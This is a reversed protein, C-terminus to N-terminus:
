KLAGNVAFEQVGVLGNADSNRVYLRIKATALTSDPQYTVPTRSSIAQYPMIDVWANQSVSWRQVKWDTIQWTCCDDDQITFTLGQYDAGFDFQVWSEAQSTTAEGTAIADDWLRDLNTWTGSSASKTSEHALGRGPVRSKLVEYGSELGAGDMIEVAEAPWAGDTILHPEGDVDFDVAAYIGTTDTYNHSAHITAPDMARDPWLFGRGKSVNYDWRTEFSKNDNFYNYGSTGHHAYNHHITTGPWPGFTYIAGSDWLGWTARATTNYVENHSITSKGIGDVGSLAPTEKATRQHIGAYATDYVLNHTVTANYTNMLSIGTAAMFDDGTNSVVNNSITINKTRKDPTVDFDTWRGAIIGAATLNHFVNGTITTNEAGTLLQLGGNGSKRVMNNTFSINNTNTLKIQGPVEDAYAGSNAGFLAEAQTGGLMRDRPALWNGHEFTLGDFGIGTAKATSSSGAVSVLTELVPVFAPATAMNEGSRPYYYVKNTARNLYWEGPQDLEEFANLFYFTHNYDLSEGADRNLRAQFHPQSLQVRKDTGSTTIDVVPFYDVKFGIATHFLRVDSVNTYAPVKSAPFQIGDYAREPRASNAPSNPIAPDDYFSTGTVPKSTALQARKGAVYLQRFYDAYGASEPVDAVYYSKGSVQTWGTVSKGGDILPTEGPYARYFVKHGNSGSDEETLTFTATRKYKGGRLYVVIDDTMGDNLNNQRIHDRAKELTAWPSAATGSNTNSGNPSVYFTYQAAAQATVTLGALAIAPVIVSALLKTRNM